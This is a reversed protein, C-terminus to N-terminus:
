LQRLTFQSWRTQLGKIFHFHIMPNAPNSHAIRNVNSNSRLVIGPCWLCDLPGETTHSAPPVVAGNHPLPFWLKRPRLVPRAGSEEMVGLRCIAWGYGGSMRDISRKSVNGARYIFNQEGCMLELESLNFSRHHNCCRRNWYWGDKPQSM